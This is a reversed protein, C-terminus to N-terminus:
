KSGKLALNLRRLQRLFPRSATEIVQAEALMKAVDMQLTPPIALGNDRCCETWATM